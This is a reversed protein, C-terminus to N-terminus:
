GMLPYYYSARGTAGQYAVLHGLKAFVAMIRVLDADSTSSLFAPTARRRAEEASWNAGIAPVAEDVYAKSEADLRNGVIVLYEWAGAFALIVALFVIGLIQLLKRM